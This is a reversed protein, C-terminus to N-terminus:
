PRAIPEIGSPTVLVMPGLHARQAQRCPRLGILRPRWSGPSSSHIGSVGIAGSRSLRVIPRLRSRRRAREVKVGAPRPGAAGGRWCLCSAWMERCRHLEFPSLNVDGPTTANPAPQPQGSEVSLTSALDPRRPPTRASPPKTPPPAATASRATSGASPKSIFSRNGTLRSNSCPSTPQAGFAALKQYGDRDAAVTLSELVAGTPTVAATHTHKHTDVGIVVDVREALM